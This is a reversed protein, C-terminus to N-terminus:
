FLMVDAYNEGWEAKQCYLLKKLKHQLLPIAHKVKTEISRINYIILEANKAM